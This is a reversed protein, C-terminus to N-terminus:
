ASLVLGRGPDPVAGQLGCVLGREGGHVGGAARRRAADGATTASAAGDARGAAAPGRGHEAGAVGGRARPGRLWAVLKKPGWTPHQGACREGAAGGGRGVIRGPRRQPARSREALGVVGEAQYRELWKYGTKRSIGYARCVEAMGVEGRECELIFRM